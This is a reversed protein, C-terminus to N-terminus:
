SFRAAREIAVFGASPFPRKVLGSRLCKKVMARPEAWSHTRIRSIPRRRLSTYSAWAAARFSRRSILALIILPSILPRSLRPAYAALNVPGAIMARDPQILHANEGRRRDCRELWLKVQTLPVEGCRTSAGGVATM